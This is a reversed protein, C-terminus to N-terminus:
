HGCSSFGLQFEIHYPGLCIKPGEASARRSWPLSILSQSQFVQLVAVFNRPRSRQLGDLVWLLSCSFLCLKFNDTRSDQVTEMPQTFSKCGLTRGIVLMVKEYAATQLVAGILSVACAVHVMKKRGLRDAGIATFPIALLNGVQPVATIVSIDTPTLVHDGTPLKQSGFTNGFPAM